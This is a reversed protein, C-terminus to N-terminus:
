CHTINLGPAGGDDRNGGLTFAVQSPSRVVDEGYRLRRFVKRWKECHQGQLKEGVVKCSVQAAINVPGPVECLAHCLLAVM